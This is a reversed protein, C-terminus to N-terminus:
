KKRKRVIPVIIGAIVIAVPIAFIITLVIKNQTDSAATFNVVGTDKRIRISDERNSLFAVTNLLIDKNNRLAIPTTTSSSTLQIKSNTAFYANSYAVLTSTTGKSSDVTKTLTEGLVFPGTEDRDVKTTISSTINERYFSQDTSKIFASATVNLNELTSDDATNIKGADIMVMSGDTYIDKVISNYSLTPIILEPSNAIMNNSSGECVVGKSFSIGYLSLIKNVNVLTTGTTDSENFIYPDQLWVIKGGGNIYNQLKTTELDTFDKTPNAIILVDCQTPMDSSLLDLTNVDNVENTIDQALYYMYSYSSIGYEGHGTLFYVQPKSSITVDLIANTMKQETIDITQYTSEDYTYMDSSELVKNRQNSSVAILQTSTSTVGFETALDPREKANVLQITIKDNVNHYQKGLTVATSDEDYGFFYVNVNQEVKSVETKSDDSLSYIKQQTFDFATIDLKKFGINILIFSAVIILVLVITLLTDRLWKQKITEIFRRM